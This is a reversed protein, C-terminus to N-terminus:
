TGAERLVTMADFSEDGPRWKLDTEYSALTQMLQRLRELNRDMRPVIEAAQGPQQRLLGTTIMLTQLPTNALDRVALFKRAIRELAVAEAHSRIAERDLQAAHRRYLLLGIAFCGYLTTVWPEAPPLPGPLLAIQVFQTTLFAVISVLGVWFSPPCLLAATLAGLRYVSVGPGIDGANRWIFESTQWIAILIFFNNVLMVANGLWMTPARRELYLLAGLLLSVAGSLYLIGAPPMKYFEPVGIALGMINLVVGFMAVRWTSREREKRDDM